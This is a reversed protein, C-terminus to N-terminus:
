VCITYNTIKENINLVGYIHEFIRHSLTYFKVLSRFLSWYFPFCPNTQVFWLPFFFFFFTRDSMHCQGADTTTCSADMLPGNSYCSLSFISISFFRLIKIPIYTYFLPNYFVPFFFFPTGKSVYSLFFVPIYFVYSNFNYTKRIRCSNFVCSISLLARQNYWLICEVFSLKM